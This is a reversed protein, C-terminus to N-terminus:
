IRMRARNIFSPNVIGKLHQLFKGGELISTSEYIMYINSFELDEEPKTYTGESNLELTPRIRFSFNNMMNSFNVLSYFAKDTSLNLWYPDGLITLELEILSGSSHINEYGLRALTSEVNINSSSSQTESNFLSDSKEYIKRESIQNYVWEKDLCHYVDDLYLRKDSSLNKVNEYRENTKKLYATVDKINKPNINNNFKNIAENYSIQKPTDSTSEVMNEITKIGINSYWLKDFSAKFELVSTDHGNYQWEYIKRLSKNAIINQLESIERDKIDEKDQEENYGDKRKLYYELYNSHTLIIDLKVRKIVTDNDIKEFIPVFKPRAIYTKLNDCHFCLQQLFESLSVNGEPQITVENPNDSSQASVFPDINNSKIDIEKGTKGDIIKGLEMYKRSTDYYDAILPNDQLYKENIYDIIKEIYSGFTSADEIIEGIKYLIEESKTVAGQYSPTMIFNYRAGNNDVNTKVESLIVEYSLFIDENGNKLIKIPKGTSNEYGSFWIDVHFPTTIYGDYGLLNTIAAIKTGLSCGNAESIVMEMSYTAASPNSYVCTHINNMKLSEISYNSSVGTEAIIIKEEDPIRYDILEGNSRQESYYNQFKANLLYFRINYTVNDYYQLINDEYNSKAIELLEDFNNSISKAM